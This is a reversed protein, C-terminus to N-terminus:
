IGGIFSEKNVFMCKFDLMKQTCGKFKQYMKELFDLELQKTLVENNNLKLKEDNLFLLVERQANLGNIGLQSLYILNGEDILGQRSRAAILAQNFATKIHYEEEEDEFNIENVSKIGKLKMVHKMQLDYNHIKRVAGGIYLESGKIENMLQQQKVLLLEKKLENTELEKEQEYLQIEVQKEKNKLYVEKLALMSKQIEALMQRINRLSTPHSVTLINDMFQSQTKGFVKTNEQIMPLDSVIEKLMVEHRKDVGINSLFTEDSILLDNM